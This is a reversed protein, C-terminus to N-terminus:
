HSSITVTPGGGTNTISVQDFTSSCPPNSITWQFVATGIGLGTVGSTPSSPTTITGTGSVLTWVGTGVVPANGALITSNSCGSQDPHLLEVIKAPFAGTTPVPTHVKTLPVPVIVVGDEGVDPTVPKPM